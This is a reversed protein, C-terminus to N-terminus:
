GGTSKRRRGSSAVGDDRGQKAVQAPLTWRCQALGIAFSPAVLRMGAHFMFIFAWVVFAVALARETPTQSISLSRRGMELLCVIAAIGLLGHEAFLRSWETHADAARFLLVRNPEAMGPGVGFYPNEKWTLFDAKMLTVRGTTEWAAFRASMAGHTFAALWPIVTLVAIAMALAGGLFLRRQIAVNRVLFIAAAGAALGATYLGGRSFTLACQAALAVMLALLVGSFWAPPRATAFLLLSCLAGLGLISSVQNPGFGGSAWINSTMRFELGATGLTSSVADSWVSINPAVLAVLIVPIDSRPLALRSFFWVGIALALPGSLNFSIADRAMQPGAEWVVLLASPVLLAAYVGPLAAGRFRGSRLIALGAVLVFAYKGFEWPVSAGTMRWFVEAGVLYAAWAAVWREYGRLALGVGLLLVTLAHITSVFPFDRAAIGLPIHVLFFVTVGLSSLGGDSPSPGSGQHRLATM